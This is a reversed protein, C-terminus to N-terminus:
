PLILIKWIQMRFIYWDSTFASEFILAPLFLLLLFHPDIEDWVQMTYVRVQPISGLAVGLITVMPTYPIKTSISIHKILQGVLLATFTLTTMLSLLDVETGKSEKLNRVM